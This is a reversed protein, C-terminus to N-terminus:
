VEVINRKLSLPHGGLIVIWGEGWKIYGTAPMQSTKENVECMVQKSLYESQETGPTWHFPAEEQLPESQHRRVQCRM